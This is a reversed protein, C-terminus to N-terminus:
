VYSLWGFREREIRIYWRCYKPVHDLDSPRVEGFIKIWHEFRGNFSEMESNIVSRRKKKGQLCHELTSPPVQFIHCHELPSERLVLLWNEIKLMSYSVSIQKEVLIIKEIYRNKYNYTSSSLLFSFCLKSGFSLFFVKLLNREKTILRQEVFTIIQNILHNNYHFKSNVTM